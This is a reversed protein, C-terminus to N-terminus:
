IEIELYDFPEGFDHWNDITRLKQAGRKQLFDSLHNQVRVHAAIKKFGREKAKEKITNLTRLFVRADRAEPKTAISEVYLVDKEPKLEPDYEKLEQYADELPKSSLYSIIENKENKTIIQIGKKNALTEKLDELGSQMESPFSAEEVALIKKLTDEDIEEITTTLYRHHEAKEKTEEEKKFGEAVLYLETNIKRESNIRASGFADLYETERPSGGIKKLTFNKLTLGEAKIDNYSTGLLIRKTHPCVELALDKVYQFLNKKIDDSLGIYDNNIEVNDLVLNIKHDSDETFYIFTQAITKDITEDKIEVIQMGADVLYDLIAARNFNEVAICCSTYNGQFIDYGPNRDWIKITFTYGRKEREKSLEPLRAKLDQLHSLSTGIQEKIKTDAEEQFIEEIEKNFDTLIPEIDKLEIKGKQPHYFEGQKFQVGYKKFVKNFLRKAKEEPLIGKKKEHYSGLLNVITEQLEKFFMERGKTQAEIAAGVKFNKIDSYNFWKEFDIGKEQFEKKVKNTYRELEELFEREDAEYGGQYKGLLVDKFNEEQFTAKIILKLLDRNEEEFYKEAEFLKALYELNWKKINDKTIETKIGCRNAFNLLLTKGLSDFVEKIDIKENQIILDTEKSLKDKLDLRKFADCLYILRYFLEGDIEKIKKTIKKLNDKIEEDSLIVSSTALLKELRSFGYSKLNQRILQTSLSLDFSQLIALGYQNRLWFKDVDETRKEESLQNNLERSYEKILRYEPLYKLIFEGLDKKDKLLDFIIQSSYLIEAESLNYKNKLIGLIKEEQTFNFVKALERLSDAAAKRVYNDSDNILKEFFITTTLGQILEQKEKEALERLKELKEIDEKKIEKKLKEKVGQRITEILLQDQAEESKRLKLIEQPPVDLKKDSRRSPYRLQMGLPLTKRIKAREEARKEAKSSLQKNISNDISM